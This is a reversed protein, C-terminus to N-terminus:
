LPMYTANALLLPNGVSTTIIGAGQREAEEHLIAALTENNQRDLHSVPEDLLLFDFPQCISRIAAVRQQQGISLTGLRNDAKDAIGLRSLLQLIEDTTKHGTLANKLGINQMVTLEPFLRMEQPLLALHSTRLTCWTDIDFTSTDDDNFLIHGDYDSRNGFLFSLLSSKGGGSEAQLCIRCGRRFTTADELWVKSRRIREATEMGRFVRPLLRRLTITEIHEGKM